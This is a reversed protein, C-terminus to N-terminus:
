RVPVDRVFEPATVELPLELGAIPAIAVGEGDGAMGGAEQKQAFGLFRCTFVEGDGSELPQNRRVAQRAGGAGAVAQGEGAGVAQEIEELVADPPEPEANRDLADLGAMGLM